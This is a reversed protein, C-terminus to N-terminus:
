HPTYDIQHIMVLTQYHNTAPLFIDSFVVACKM